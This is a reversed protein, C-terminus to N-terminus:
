EPKLILLLAAGAAFLIPADRSGGEVMAQPWTVLAVRGAHNGEVDYITGRSRDVAGLRVGGLDFIGGDPTVKGAKEEGRWVYGSWTRVAGVHRDTATQVRSTGEYVEGDQRVYGVKTDGKFVGISTLGSAKKQHGM